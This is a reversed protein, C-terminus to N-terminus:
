AEVLGNGYKLGEPMPAKGDGQGAMGFIVVSRRHTKAQAKRQQCEKHTSGGRGCVTRGALDKGGEVRQVEIGLVDVFNRGGVADFEVFAVSDQSEILAFQSEELRELVMDGAEDEGTDAVGQGKRVCGGFPLLQRAEEASRDKVLAEDGDVGAEGVVGGLLQKRLEALGGQLGRGVVAEGRKPPGIDFAEVGAVRLADQELFEGGSGTVKEVGANIADEGTREVDEDIGQTRFIEHEALGADDVM